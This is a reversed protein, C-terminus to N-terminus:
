SLPMTRARKPSRKTTLQLALNVATPRLQQFRTHGQELVMRRVAEGRPGLDSAIQVRQPKQPATRPLAITEATRPTRRSRIPGRKRATRTARAGRDGAERATSLPM